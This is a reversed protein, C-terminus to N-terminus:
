HARDPWHSSRLPDDNVRIAYGADGIVESIVRNTDAHVQGFTDNMCYCRVALVTGSPKFEVIEVSPAPQKLVNAVSAVRSSLRNMVDILDIGYAIPATISVRRHDNASFNQISDAFIKNNGISVRVNDATDVSTTFLGIERVTGGIGGAQIADGVKFPRLLLLFLGAAFNALLGSWAAGVAIGAAAMLAAFSTTELGLVGFVAILLLGKLLVALSTDLYVALTDDLRRVAMVRRVATRIVRVIAAGILWVAAAGLLKWGFPLLYARVFTDVQSTVASDM